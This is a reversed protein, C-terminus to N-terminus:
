PASAPLSIAAASLRLDGRRRTSSCPTPAARQDPADRQARRLDRAVAHLDARDVAPPQSRHAAATNTSCGACPPSTSWDGAESAGRDPIGLGATRRGAALAPDARPLRAETPEARAAPRDAGAGPAARVEHHVPHDEPRVAAELGGRVGRPGPVAGAAGALQGDDDQRGQGPHRGTALHVSRHAAHARGSGLRRVVRVAAGHRRHPDMGAPVGGTDGAAPRRLLQPRKRLLAGRADVLRPAAPEEGCGKPCRSARRAWRVACRGPCITSLSSRCRNGTSRTAASCSTPAKAPCCWRSTSAPRAPSSSCRSWLRTPSPNTWIGSSKPCRRSSSPRASWRPVHRAGIAEASAM